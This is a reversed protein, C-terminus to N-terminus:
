QESCTFGAVEIAKCIDEYTADGEVFASKSSLDVSAATVGAVSLIAKKAAMRCHNCDMGYIKIKITKTMNTKQSKCCCHEDDHSHEHIHKGFKKHLMAVAIMVFLLVSCVISFLSTPEACCSDNVVLSSLFWERPLIHDIILGFGVAGVIISALYTVLAKRGMVKNIVLISAMNCAPGAMLLVLGAGPTLGKIMLAVAIPISGTACLYMPVAFCLVLLMSLMSNDKFIEFFSDPVFVTILGAVLLGVVLWKGIDEMMDLFAYRLAEKLKGLFSRDESKESNCCDECDCKAEVAGEGKVTGEGKKGEVFNVMQGGFLATLLAAMPRVIAFPLGMLSFTAIISDVGTQPTAILFSTAAGKSAGERHLSMATPIVGCSCLPIPIGFLAALLVSKFNPKSLYKSYITGPIFAHMLGALFFGLLLFPSMEYILDLFKEM